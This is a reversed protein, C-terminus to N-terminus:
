SVKMGAFPVDFEAPPHDGAEFVKM